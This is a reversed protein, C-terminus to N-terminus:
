KCYFTARAKLLAKCKSNEHYSQRSKMKKGEFDLLIALFLIMKAWKWHAVCVNYLFAPLIFLHIVLQTPLKSNCFSLRFFTSGHCTCCRHMAPITVFGAIMKIFQWNFGNKRRFIFIHYIALSLSLASNAKIM